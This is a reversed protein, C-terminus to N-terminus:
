INVGYSIAVAYTYVLMKGYPLLDKEQLYMDGSMKRWFYDRRSVSAIVKDEDGILHVSYSGDDLLKWVAFDNYLSLSYNFYEDNM